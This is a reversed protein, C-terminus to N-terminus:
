QRYGFRKQLSITKSDWARQTWELLLPVASFAEVCRRGYSERVRKEKPRQPSALLPLDYSFSSTCTQQPLLLKGARSSPRFCYDCCVVAYCFFGYHLPLVTQVYSIHVVPPCEFSVLRTQSTLLMTIQRWDCTPRRLETLDVSTDSLM